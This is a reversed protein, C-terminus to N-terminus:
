KFLTKLAALTQIIPAIAQIMVFVNVAAKFPASNFLTMLGSKTEKKM